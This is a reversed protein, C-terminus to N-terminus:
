LRRGVPAVEILECPKTDIGALEGIPQKKRTFGLCGVHVLSGPEAALRFRTGRRWRGVIECGVGWEHWRSSSMLNTDSGALEGIPPKKRTFGLCGVHVLLQRLNPM